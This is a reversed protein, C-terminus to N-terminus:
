SNVKLLYDEKAKELINLQEETLDEYELGFVSLADEYDYTICFEHNALEYRFAQFLFEKDKLLEKEKKNLDDWMKKYAEKDSKRIFGGYGISCINGKNTKLKKLGEKLQEESFAYFCPFDNIEKEVEEKFELYINKM